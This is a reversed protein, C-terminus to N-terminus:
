ESSPSSTPWTGPWPKESLFLTAAIARNTAGTGVLRLVEHERLTLGAAARASPPASSTLLAAVAVSDPLAGLEDFVWKAARLELHATDEDGLVRCAVALRVRCRAVDYPAPIQQWAACARRLSAAASAADGGALHVIGSAQLASAAVVVSSRQAAAVRLEAAAERAVQLDGADVAVEVVAPLLRLRGSARSVETLARRLAAVAAAPRGQAVRLVALGPQPDHGARVAQEYAAEAEAFEGRLRHLEGRHYWAPGTALELHSEVTSSAARAYETSAEDWSGTLQLIEGRHVTCQGRFPVLEPQEACWRTLAATWERGRRVDLAEHCTSIAACYVVGALQPYIDEATTVVVIMEGLEALGAEVDGRAVLAQGRANRGLVLLDNDGYDHAAAVARGALQEATAADGGFLAGMAQPLVLFSQLVSDQPGAADLVSQARAFWGGGRAPEGRLTLALALWFAVRCAPEIRGAAVYAHHARERAADAAADLGALHLALGYNDLDVAGLSSEADARAYAEAAARWQRRALARRAQESHVDALMADARWPERTVCGDPKPM